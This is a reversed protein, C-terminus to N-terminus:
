PASRTVPDAALAVDPIDAGTVEDTWYTGEDLRRLAAEVGALDRDIRELDIPERQEEPDSV